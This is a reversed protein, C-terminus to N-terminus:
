CLCSVPPNLSNYVDITMDLLKFITMYVRAAQMEKSLPSNPAPCVDTSIKTLPRGGGSLNMCKVSYVPHGNKKFLRLSYYLTLVKRYFFYTKKTKEEEKYGFLIATSFLRFTTCTTCKFYM